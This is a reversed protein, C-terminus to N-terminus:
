SDEQQGYTRGEQLEVSDSKEVIGPVTARRTGIYGFGKKLLGLIRDLVLTILKPKAPLNFLISNKYIGAVARNVFSYEDNELLLYMISRELGPLTKDIIAATAEPVVDDPEIGLAGFVIILSFGRLCLDFLTEKISELEREVGVITGTELGHKKILSLLEDVFEFPMEKAFVLAVKGRDVTHNMKEFV